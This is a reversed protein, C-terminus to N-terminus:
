TILMEIDLEFKLLPLISIVIILELIIIDRHNPM